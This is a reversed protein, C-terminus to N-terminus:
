DENHYHHWLSHFNRVIDARINIPDSYFATSAELSDSYITCRWTGDKRYEVRIDISFKDLLDRAMSKITTKAIEGAKIEVWFDKIERDVLERFYHRQSGFELMMEYLDEPIWRLRIPETDQLTIIFGYQDEAVQWILDDISICGRLTGRHGKRHCGASKMLHQFVKCTFDWVIEDDVDKQPREYVHNLQHLGYRMDTRAMEISETLLEKHTRDTTVATKM